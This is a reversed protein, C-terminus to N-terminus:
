QLIYKGFILAFCVKLALADLAPRGHLHWKASALEQLHM